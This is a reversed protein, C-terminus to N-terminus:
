ASASSQGGFQRGRQHPFRHFARQSQLHRHHDFHYRRYGGLTAGIPWFCILQGLVDNLRRSRCALRHAADHGLIGLAHQRTGIGSAALTYVFWHQTLAVAAFAALISLWDAAAPLLWRSLRRERLPALAEGIHAQPVQVADASASHPLASVDAPAIVASSTLRM